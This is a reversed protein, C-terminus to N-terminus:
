RGQLLCKFMCVCASLPHTGRSGGGVRGRGGGGRGMGEKNGKNDWSLCAQHVAEIVGDHTEVKSVQLRRHIRPIRASLIEQSAERIAKKVQRSEYAQTFPVQCRHTPREERVSRAQRERAM